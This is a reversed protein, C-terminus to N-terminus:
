TIRKIIKLNKLMKKVITLNIKLYTNKINKKCKKIKLDIKIVKQIMLKRYKVVKNYFYKMNNELKLDMKLGMKELIDKINKIHVIIM